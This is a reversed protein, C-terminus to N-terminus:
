GKPKEPSLGRAGLKQLVINIVEEEKDAPIPYPDFDELKSPDVILLRVKVTASPAITFLIKRGEVRFGVQGELLGEDEAALLDWDDPTVPIYAAGSPEPSVSYVGMDRPLRIPIAPLDAIQSSVAVATYTAIMCTPIDILGSMAKQNVELSLLNNSAQDILIGIERKEVHPKLNERDFSRM